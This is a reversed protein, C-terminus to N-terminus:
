STVEVAYVTIRASMGGARYKDECTHWSGANGPGNLIVDWKLCLDVYNRDTDGAAQQWITKGDTNM